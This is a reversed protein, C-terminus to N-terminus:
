VVLLEINNFIHLHFDRVNHLFTIVNNEVTRRIGWPQNFSLHTERQCMPLGLM